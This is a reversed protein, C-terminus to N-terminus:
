RGHIVGRTQIDELLGARSSDLSTKESLVFVEFIGAEENKGWLRRGKTIIQYQMVTSATRLDILDVPLHVIDAIEGALRWAEIPDLTGPVLVALDLDSDAGAHGTAQSGFLYVALMDPLRSQLHKLLNQTDM